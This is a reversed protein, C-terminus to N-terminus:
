EPADKLARIAERSERGFSDWLRRKEEQSAKELMRARRPAVHRAWARKDRLYLAHEQEPTM